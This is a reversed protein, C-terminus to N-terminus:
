PLAACVIRLTGGMRAFHLTLSTFSTVYLTAAAPSSLFCPCPDPTPVEKIVFGQSVMLKMYSSAVRLHEPSLIGAEELLSKNQVVSKELSKISERPNSVLEQSSWRNAQGIAEKEFGRFLLVSEQVVADLQLAVFRRLEDLSLNRGVHLDTIHVLRLAPRDHAVGPVALSTRTVRLQRQGFVYGYTLLAANSNVLIAGATGGGGGSGGVTATLSGMSLGSATISGKANGGGGADTITVVPARTYGM